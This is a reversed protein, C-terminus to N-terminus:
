KVEVKEKVVFCIKEDAKEDPYAIIKMKGEEGVGMVLGKLASDAVDIYAPTKTSAKFFAEVFQKPTGKRIGPLDEPM